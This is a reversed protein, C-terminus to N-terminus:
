GDHRTAHHMIREETAEDRRLEATVRGERMVVIRDSLALIEPLDSSVMVIAAGTAALDALLQWIERKAGVDVGRTPEDVLLIRCDAHLWKAFIVKQQNGGSLSRVRAGSGRTRVALRQIYGSAMRRERARSVVAWRAIGALRVISTNFAVTQRLLLGDAKRDETLLGIRRAIADRPSRIRVPEGFVEIRGGDVPDAGHIARLVETRGAGALGAIGVIEGQHVTLDVGHLVGRRTLGRVALAAAGPTGTREIRDAAVERGVMLQVLRGTTLAGTPETTVVQGDKMVVVRDTIQFVENLRHSIYVFSVGRSALRRMVDFLGRLEADGLVASPEDLVILRADRSLAKAIEVMQRRAVSLRGVLARPELALGLRQSLATTDRSLRRWDVTGWRTRPLRGMFINEATTLHPALSPDQYIVAVGRRIMGHPTEAGVREGAVRIEGADRGYAGALVKVLTSKGAGNEGVLGVIEGPAVWVDVARLAHVGPFRKDIGRMELVLPPAAAHAGTAGM